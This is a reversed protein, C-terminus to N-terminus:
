AREADNVVVKARELRKHADLALNVLLHFLDALLTVRADVLELVVQGVALRVLPAATCARTVEVDAFVTQHMVARLLAAIWADRNRLVRECIYLALVVGLFRARRVASDRTHM